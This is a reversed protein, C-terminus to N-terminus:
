MQQAEYWKCIVKNMVQPFDRGGGHQAWSKRLLNMRVDNDVELLLLTRVLADIEEQPNHAKSLESAFPNTPVAATTNAPAMLSTVAFPDQYNLTPSASVPASTQASSRGFASSAFNKAQSAM